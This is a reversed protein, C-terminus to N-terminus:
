LRKNIPLSEIHFFVRNLKPLKDHIYLVAFSFCTFSILLMFVKNRNFIFVWLLLRCNNNKNSCTQQKLEDWRRMRWSESILFLHSDTGCYDKLGWSSFSGRGVQLQVILAACGDEVAPLLKGQWAAERIQLWFCLTWMEIEVGGRTCAWLYCVGAAAMRVDCVTQGQILEDYKIKWGTSLGGKQKEEWGPTIRGPSLLCTSNMNLDSSAPMLVSVHCSLVWGTSSCPAEM